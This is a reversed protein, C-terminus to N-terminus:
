VITQRETRAGVIKSSWHKSPILFKWVPFVALLLDWCSGFICPCRFRSRGFRFHGPFATRAWANLRRPSPLFEERRCFAFAGDGIRALKSGACFSVSHLDQCHRFCDSGISAVPAPVFFSKLGSCHRFAAEPIQALRRALGFVGEYVFTCGEASSLGLIEISNAVPLREPEGVCRVLLRAQADVVAGDSVRFCPNGAEVSIARMGSRAVSAGSFM